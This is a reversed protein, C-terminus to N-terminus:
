ATGTRTFHGVVKDRLTYFPVERETCDEQPLNQKWEEKRIFVMVHYPLEPERPPVAAGTVSVTIQSIVDSLPLEYIDSNDANQTLTFSPSSQSKATVSLSLDAGLIDLYTKLSLVQRHYKSNTAFGQM